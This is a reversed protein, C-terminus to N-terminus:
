LMVALLISCMMFLGQAMVSRQSGSAARPAVSLDSRIVYYDSGWPEYDAARESLGVHWFPTVLNSVPVEELIFDQITQSLMVREDHGESRSLMDVYLDITTSNIHAHNNSGDSRFFTTLFWLPDGAPLTHQAWMLLDFNRDNIIQETESWDQGTVITTVTIGLATLTEAIAKQSILLGPRHPYAVLQVTLEKSDKARKGSTNLTWGAEELLKSAADPDGGADSDDSFFPSNDPFLSRTGKGGALAQSVTNRDIALDIAKRIRVDELTEMNYFMMYHYGVEFSKIRAGKEKRLDPLTDIPLQFAIDVKDEKFATALDHGDEFKKILVTSRGTASPYYENPVLRIQEAEFVAIAFPGTFVFNGDSTKSYIVFAWEALVADMMHTQRESEIRVTTDDLAVVTMNGLSSQASPNRKNQEMLSFAVADTSVPTGDSFKSGPQVTVDWVFDSVKAVSTALQGVINGNKDVTFLKEAIGHSTLAWPTSGESPDTSEALFTLGVVVPDDNGQSTCVLGFSLITLIHVLAFM